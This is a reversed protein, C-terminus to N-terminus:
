VVSKRDTGFLDSIASGVDGSTISADDAPFYEPQTPENSGLAADLTSLLDHSSPGDNQETSPDGAGLALDEFPNAQATPSKSEPLVAPFAPGLPDLEKLNELLVEAEAKRNLKACIQAVMRVAALNTPNRDLVKRLISEAEDLENMDFLISGKVMLGPLFTPYQKLGAEVTPLASDLDGARRQMDALWAFAMSGSKKQLLTRLSELTQSM